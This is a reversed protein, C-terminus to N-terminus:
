GTHASALRVSRYRCWSSASLRVRRRTRTTTSAGSKNPRRVKIPRSIGTTVAMPSPGTRMSRRRRVPPLVQPVELVKDSQNGGPTDEDVDSVRNWGSHTAAAASGSAGAAVPKAAVHPATAAANSSAVDGGDDSDVDADDSAPDGPISPEVLSGGSPPPVAYDTPPASSSDLSTQAFVPAALALAVFAISRGLGWSSPSAGILGSAIFGGSWDPLLNRSM